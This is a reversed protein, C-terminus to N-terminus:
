DVLMTYVYHLIFPEETKQRLISLELNVSYVFVDIHSFKSIIYFDTFILGKSTKHLKFTVHM